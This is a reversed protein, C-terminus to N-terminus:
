LGTDSILHKGLPETTFFRGAFVPFELEIEPDPLDGPSPLLWESWYEHGSFGISLSAQCAVIWPSAFSDSM